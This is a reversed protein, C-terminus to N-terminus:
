WRKEVQERSPRSRSPTKARHAASRSCSCPSDKWTQWGRNMPYSWVKKIASNSSPLHAALSAKREKVTNLAPCKFSNTFFFFFIELEHCWADILFFPTPPLHRRARCEAMVTHTYTSIQLHPRCTLCCFYSALFFFLFFLLLIQYDVGFQTNKILWKQCLVMMVQGNVSSFAWSM